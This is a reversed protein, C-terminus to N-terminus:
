RRRRPTLAALEEATLFRAVESRGVMSHAAVAGPPTLSFVHRAEFSRLLVHVRRGPLPLARIANDDGFRDANREDRQAYHLEGVWYVLKDVPRRLYFPLGHQYFGYTWVADGPALSAAIAEAAPKASVLAEARPIAALACAGLLLGGACGGILRQAADRGFSVALLGAGLAGAGLPLWPLAEPPVKPVFPAAGAAVILLAGLGAGFNRSWAPLGRDAARAALLCLHPLVPLIYTALQSHSTSFFATVVLAWLALALDAPADRWRRRALGAAAAGAWPLLAGPLVALYFWWGGQRNYKPTLYRQFHQEVFIFHLFGPHRKEMVYFWPAAIAAFLVVGLPNLLGLAPRRYQPVLLLLAVVWAGPLVLAVLGKSLFALGAAAWAAPAAWRADRPREVCRLILATEALLTVALLTDLTIYHALFFWLASSGLAAAGLVGSRRDYLWSGLWFTLLVGGTALLALPLRAQAEGVGFAKYSAAALWYWLPPKEVYDMGNLRPTAWDGSAAMERPVEAYRADDVELLVHGLSWFPAVAGLILLAWAWRPASM